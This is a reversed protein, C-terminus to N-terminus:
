QFLNELKQNACISYILRNAERRWGNRAGAQDPFRFSKQDMELDVQTVYPSLEPQNPESDLRFTTILNAQPFRQHAQGVISHYPHNSDANLRALLEYLSYLDASYAQIALERWRDNHAVLFCQIGERSAFRIMSAAISVAFEFTSRHGEGVNFRKRCDLVVLM